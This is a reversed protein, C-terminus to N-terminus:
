GNPNVEKVFHAYVFSSSCRELLKCVKEESNNMVLSDVQEISMENIKEVQFWTGSDSVDMTYSLVDIMESYYKPYKMDGNPRGIRYDVFNAIYFRSGHKKDTRFVIYGNEDKLKKLRWEPIVKGLKLIWVKGDTLVRNHEEVFDYGKYCNVRLVIVTKSM